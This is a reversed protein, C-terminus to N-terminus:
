KGNNFEEEKKEFLQKIIQNTGTSSAGSILGVLLYDILNGEKNTLYVLIGLVGGTISVIVPILKYANQKDKFIVKYVEGILYCIIVIVIEM